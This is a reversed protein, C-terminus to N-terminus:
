NYTKIVHINHSIREVSYRASEMQAASLTQPLLPAFNANLAM